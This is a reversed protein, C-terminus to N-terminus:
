TKSFKENVISWYGKIVKEAESFDQTKIKASARQLVSAAFMAFNADDFVAKEDETLERWDTIIQKYKNGNRGVYTLQIQM